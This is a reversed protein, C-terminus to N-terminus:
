KLSKSLVGHLYVVGEMIMFKRPSLNSFSPVPLASFGEEAPLPQSWSAIVDASLGMVHRQVLTVKFDFM